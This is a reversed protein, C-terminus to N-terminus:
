GKREEPLDLMVTAKAGVQERNELMLKGRHRDVIGRVVSLGLGTGGMGRRTTYFPDFVKELAEMPIGTGTDIIEVGIQAIKGEAEVAFSRITMTGGQPMANLANSMLNVFVQEMANRDVPIPPLERAYDCVIDVGHNGALHRVLNLSRNLIDVIPTDELEAESPSSFDLLGRIVGDARRIADTMDELVQKIDPDVKELSGELFDIGQLLIALPNKVEHAVGAALRGVSKLKEAQILQSQTEKLERNVRRLDALAEHLRHEHRLQEQISLKLRDEIRIRETMDTFVIVAGTVEVGEFLPTRVYEVHLPSGDKKVFCTERERHIQGDRFLSSERNANRDKQGLVVRRYDEGLLQAEADYGLVRVGAPNIFSIRGELDVGFIGEGVSQIVSRLYVESKRLAVSAQHREQSYRIIRVLLPGDVEGKVLYDQAGRRVAISATERDNLGSMIVCPVEPSLAHLRIFTDLGQSDPLSLDLLVIDPQGKELNSFTEDLSATRTLSFSFSQVKRLMIELLEADGDDDEVLLIRVPKESDSIGSDEPSSPADPQM